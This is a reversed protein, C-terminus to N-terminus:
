LISIFPKYFKSLSKVGSIYSALDGGFYGNKKLRTVFEEVSSAELPRYKGVSKMIRLYDNAWDQISKYHAYPNPGESKPAPSGPSAGPQGYYKIGSLNNDKITGQNKYHGTEYAIQGMVWGIREDDLGASKLATGAQYARLAQDSSYGKLLSMIQILKEKTLTIAQKVQKNFIILGIGLIAGIIFIRQTRKNMM